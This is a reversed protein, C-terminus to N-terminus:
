AARGVINHLPKETRIAELETHGVDDWFTMDAAIEEWRPAYALISEYGLHKAARARHCGDHIHYAYGRRRIRFAVIPPFIAGARMEAAYERWDPSPTCRWPEILRIPILRRNVSM